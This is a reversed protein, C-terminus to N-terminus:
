QQDKGLAKQGEESEVWDKAWAMAEDSVVQRGLGKAAVKQLMGAYMRYFLATREKEEGPDPMEAIFELAKRMRANEEKLNTYQELTEAAESLEKEMTM